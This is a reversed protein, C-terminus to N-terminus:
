YQFLRSLGELADIESVSHHIGNHFFGVEDHSRAIRRAIQLKDEFEMNDLDVTFMERGIDAVARRYGRWYEQRTAPVLGRGYVEGAELADNAELYIERLQQM